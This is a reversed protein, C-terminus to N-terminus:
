KKDSNIKFWYEYCSGSLLNTQHNDVRVTIKYREPGTLIPSIKRSYHRILAYFPILKYLWIFRRIHRLPNELILLIFEKDEGLSAM